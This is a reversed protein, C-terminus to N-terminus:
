DRFDKTVSNDRNIVVLITALLLGGCVMILLILIAVPLLQLLGVSVGLMVFAVLNTLTVQIPHPLPTM